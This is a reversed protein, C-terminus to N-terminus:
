PWPSPWPRECHTRRATTRWSACHRWGTRATGARTPRWVWCCERGLATTPTPEDLLAQVVFATATGKLLRKSIRESVFEHRAAAVRKRQRAQAREAADLGDREPLKVTSAGRAHRKPETCVGIVQPGGYGAVIVVAHCPESSHDQAAVGMDTLKKYASPRHGEGPLIRVGAAEQEAVAAAYREEAVKRRLHERLAWGVDGAAEALVQEIVEPQDKAELLMKADTLTLDGSEVAVQAVEPLELLALRDRVHRESKGVKRSLTRLGYGHECLRLYAGAEELVTLGCRQLNEVLQIEVIEADILTKVLCPMEAVGAETAAAHRRHGAVIRYWGDEIPTVLCPEVVGVGAISKALESVDGVHRRVNNPDPRLKEIPISLVTSESM